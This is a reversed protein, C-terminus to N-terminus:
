CEQEGHAYGKVCREFRQVVGIRGPVLHDAPRDVAKQFFLAVMRDDDAPEPAAPYVPLGGPQQLCHDFLPSNDPQQFMIRNVQPEGIVTIVLSRVDKSRPYTGPQLDWINNDLGAVSGPYAAVPSGPGSKVQVPFSQLCRIPEYGVPVPIVAVQLSDNGRFPQVPDFGTKIRFQESEASLTTICQSGAPPCPQFRNNQRSGHKARIYLGPAQDPEEVGAYTEMLCSLIKQQDHGPIPRFSVSEFPKRIIQRFILHNKGAPNRTFFHDVVVRCSIDKGKGADIFREAHDKQLSLGAPQRNNGTIVSSYRFHDHM